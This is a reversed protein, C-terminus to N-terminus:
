NAFITSSVPSGLAGLAATLDLEVTGTSDVVTFDAEACTDEGEATCPPIRAPFSPILEVPGPPGQAFWRGPTAPNQGDLIIVTTGNAATTSAAFWRYYRNTEQVYCVDEDQQGEIGDLAVCFESDSSLVNTRLYNAM